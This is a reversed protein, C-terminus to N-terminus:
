GHSSRPMASSRAYVDSAVQGVRALGVLVITKISQREKRGGFDGLVQGPPNQPSCKERYCALAGLVVEEIEDRVSQLNKNAAQQIAMKALVNVIADCDLSRFLNAHQAANPVSITQVRIRREGLSTTYLLASQIVSQGNPELSGEHKLM